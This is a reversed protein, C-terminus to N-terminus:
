GIFKAVISDYRLAVYLLTALNGFAVTPILWLLVIMVSQENLYIVFMSLALGLYLDIGVQRGWHLEAMRAISKFLNERRSCYITYALFAAFSFWVLYKGAPLPGRWAFLDASWNAYFAVAVFAAFAVWYLNRIAM